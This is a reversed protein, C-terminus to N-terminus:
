RGDVLVLIKGEGEELKELAKAIIMGPKIKDIDGRMLHGPKSSTVLLDGPGIAGNETTAKCEVQGLLTILKRNEGGKGLVFGPTESVIGVVRYDYPKNSKMLKKDANRDIVMVDGAECPETTFYEALDANSTIVGQATISGDTTINGAASITGNSDISTNSWIQGSAWLKGDFYGAEYSSGGADAYIAYTGTTPVKAYVGYNDGEAYVGYTGGEAYVGYYDGTGYVGLNGGKGYVGAKGGGYVGIGGAFATGYVGINYDYNYPGGPSYTDTGLIASGAIGINRYDGSADADVGICTSTGTANVQIGKRGTTISVATGTQDSNGITLKTANGYGTQTAIAVQGDVLGLTDPDDSSGVGLKNVHQVDYEGSPAPYYTTLTIDEAVSSRVALLLLVIVLIGLIRRKM